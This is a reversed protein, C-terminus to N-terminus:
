DGKSYYSYIHNIAEHAEAESIDSSCMSSVTFNLSQALVIAVVDAQLETPYSKVISLFLKGMEKFVIESVEDSLKEEQPTLEDKM